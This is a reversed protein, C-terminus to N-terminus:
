DHIAVSGMRTLTMLVIRYHKWVSTKDKKSCGSILQRVGM